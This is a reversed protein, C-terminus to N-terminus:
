FCLARSRARPTAFFDKIATVNMSDKSRRHIEARQFVALSLSFRRTILATSKSVPLRFALTKHNRMTPMTPISM